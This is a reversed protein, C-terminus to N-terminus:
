RILVTAGGDIVFNGGTVSAAEDSALYTALGAVHEPAGMTGTATAKVMASFPADDGMDALMRQTRPTGIVGPSITNARIGAAGGEAALQRTLAIVAGKTAAHAAEGFGRSGIIGAISGINIISGGGRAVLHPWAEQCSYWILHLEHRVTFEYDEDTMEAFPARRLRGANNCLADIGGCRQLAFEMWRVVDRRHSLDIPALSEMALGDARLIDVTEAAADADLDCGVVRASEAAFVQAIVRGLGRGTGSVLAVKGALRGLEARGPRAGTAHGASM